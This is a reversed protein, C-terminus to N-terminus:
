PSNHFFQNARLLNKTFVKVQSKVELDLENVSQLSGKLFVMALHPNTNKLLVQGHQVDDEVPLEADLLEPLQHLLALLKSDMETDGLCSHCSDYEVFDFLYKGALRKM